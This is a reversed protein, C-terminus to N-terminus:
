VLSLIVIWLIIIGVAFLIIIQKGANFFFKGLFYVVISIIVVSAIFLPFGGIRTVFGLSQVLEFFLRLLEILTNIGNAVVTVIMSLIIGLPSEM